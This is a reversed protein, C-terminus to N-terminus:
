FHLIYFEIKKIKLKQNKIPIPMYGKKFKANWRGRRASPRNQIKFQKTLSSSNFSKVISESM